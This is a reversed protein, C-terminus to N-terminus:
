YILEEQERHLDFSNPSLPVGLNGQTVGNTSLKEESRKQTM